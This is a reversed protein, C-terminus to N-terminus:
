QTPHADERAVDKAELCVAEFDRFTLDVHGNRLASSWALFTQFLFPAKDAM